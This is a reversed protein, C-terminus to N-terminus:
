MVAAKKMDNEVTNKDTSNVSKTDNLVKYSIVINHIVEYQSDVYARKATLSLNLRM